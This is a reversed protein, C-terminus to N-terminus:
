ALMPDPLCSGLFRMMETAGGTPYFRAKAQKYELRKNASISLGDIGHRMLEGNMMARATRKNGDFFFQERSTFLKLAFARELPDEVIAKLANTGTEFVKILNAAGQKPQDLFSTIGIALRDMDLRCCEVSPAKAEFTAGTWHKTELL